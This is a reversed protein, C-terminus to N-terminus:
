GLIPPPPPPPTPPQIVANGGDPRNLTVPKPSVYVELKTVKPNGSIEKWIFKFIKYNLGLSQCIEQLKLTYYAEVEAHTSTMTAANGVVISGQPFNLDLWLGNSIAKKKKKAPSKKAASKKKVTKPKKTAM